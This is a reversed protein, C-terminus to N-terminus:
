VCMYHNPVLKQASNCPGLWSLVQVTTLNCNFLEVTEQGPGAGRSNCSYFLRQNPLGFMQEIDTILLEEIDDNKIRSYMCNM